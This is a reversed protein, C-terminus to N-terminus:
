VMRAAIHLMAALTMCGVMVVIVAQFVSTLHESFPTAQPKLDVPM